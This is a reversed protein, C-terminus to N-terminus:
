AAGKLATAVMDPFRDIVTLYALPLISANDVTLSIETPEFRHTRLVPDRRRVRVLSFTARSYLYSAALVVLYILCLFQLIRYPFLLISALLFVALPWHIRNRRRRSM